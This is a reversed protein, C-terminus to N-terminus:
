HVGGHSHHHLQLQQDCMIPQSLQITFQYRVGISRFYVYCNSYMQCYIPLVTLLHLNWLSQGTRERERLLCGSLVGQWLDVGGCSRYKVVLPSIVLLKPAGQATKHNAGVPQFRQRGMIGWGCDIWILWWCVGLSSATCPGCSGLAKHGSTCAVSYENM